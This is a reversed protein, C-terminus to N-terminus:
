ASTLRRGQPMEMYYGWWRLIAARVWTEAADAIAPDAFKGCLATWTERANYRHLPLAHITRAALRDIGSASIDMRALSSRLPTVWYLVGDEATDTAFPSGAIYARFDPNWKPTDIPDRERLWASRPQYGQNEDVPGTLEVRRAIAEARMRVTTGRETEVGNIHLQDIVEADVARRVARICDTFTRPEEAVQRLSRDYEPTYPAERLQRRDRVAMSL